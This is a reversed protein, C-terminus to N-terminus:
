SEPKQLKIFIENGSRPPISNHAEAMIDIQFAKFLTRYEAESGGFPPNPKDPDLPFKFLLGVLKGGPKLLSHIHKVYDQRLEPQLACFFTQELILDYAGSHDFFNGHILDEAPFSPTREALAKLPPKALDVVKLNSFGRKHLYEAEYANGAGPILIDLELETLQDIYNKLPTSPEGINWGTENAEYRATWFAEDFPNDTM